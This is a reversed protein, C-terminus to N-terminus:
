DKTDEEYTNNYDTFSCGFAVFIPIITFVFFLLLFPAAFIFGYIRKKM